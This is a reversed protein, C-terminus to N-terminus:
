PATERHYSGETIRNVSRVDYQQRSTSFSNERESRRTDSEDRGYADFRVEVFRDAEEGFM